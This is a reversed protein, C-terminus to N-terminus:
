MSFRNLEQELLTLLERESVSSVAGHIGAAMLIVLSAEASPNSMEASNASNRFRRLLRLRGNHQEFRKSTRPM